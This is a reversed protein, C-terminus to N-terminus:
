KRTFVWSIPQQGANGSISAELTGDARKLYRIMKPFDHKPNEFTASDGDLRTLAFETPPTGGPQAIYVLSGDREVVRLFEFEALHDGRLTRSVALMAGGAANTWREEVTRDTSASVWTGEMWAVDRITARPAQAAAVAATLACAAAVIAAAAFRRYTSPM